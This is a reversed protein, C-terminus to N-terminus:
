GYYSEIFSKKNKKNSKLITFKLKNYQKKFNLGEDLGKKVNFFTGYQHALKLEKGIVGLDISTEYKVPYPPIFDNYLLDKGLYQLLIALIYESNLVTSDKEEELYSDLFHHLASPSLRIVKLIFKIDKKDFFSSEFYKIKKDSKIHSDKPPMWSIKNKNKIKELIKNNIEEVLALNIINAGYNSKLIKSGIIVSNKNSLEGNYINNLIKKLTYPSTNLWYNKPNTGRKLTEIEMSKLINEKKLKKFARDKTINNIKRKKTSFESYFPENFEKKDFNGKLETSVHENGDLLELIIFLSFLDNKTFKFGENNKKTKLSKDAM